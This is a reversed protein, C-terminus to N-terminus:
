YPFQENGKVSCTTKDKPVSQKRQPFPMV